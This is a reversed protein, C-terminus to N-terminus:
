LLLSELHKTAKYYHTTTAEDVWSLSSHVIADVSDLYDDVSEPFGDGLKFALKQMEDGHKLYESKARIKAMDAQEATGEEILVLFSGVELNIKNELDRLKQKELANEDEPERMRKRVAM